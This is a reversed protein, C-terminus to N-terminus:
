PLLKLVSESLSKFKLRQLSGTFIIIIFTPCFFVFVAHNDRVRSKITYLSCQTRNNGRSHPTSSKTNTHSGEGGELSRCLAFYCGEPLNLEGGRLNALRSKLGTHCLAFASKWWCLYSVHLEHLCFFLASCRFM